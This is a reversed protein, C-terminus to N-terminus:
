AERNRDCGTSPHRVETSASAAASGRIAADTDGALAAGGRGRGPNQSDAGSVAPPSDALRMTSRAPRRANTVAILVGAGPQPPRNPLKPSGSRRVRRRTPRRPRKWARRRGLGAPMAATLPRKRPLRASSRARQRRPGHRTLQVKRRRGTRRTRM